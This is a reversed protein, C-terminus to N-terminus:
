RVYSDVKEIEEDIVRIVDELYIDNFVKKIKGQATTLYIDFLDAGNVGMYIHGHHRRAQVMFRLTYKNMRRYAHAGWSMVKMTRGIASVFGQMDVWERLGVKSVDIKEGLKM